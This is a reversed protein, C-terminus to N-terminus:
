DKIINNIFFDDYLLWAILGHPKNPIIILDKIDNDKCFSITDKLLIEDSGCFIKINKMNDKTYYKKIKIDFNNYINIINQSLIIDKNKQINNLYNLNWGIFPSILIIKTDILNFYKSLGLTLSCGASHSYIKKIGINNLLKIKNVLDKIIDDFCVNKITEITLVQYNPFKSKLTDIIFIDFCDNGIFAGGNILLITDINQLNNNTNEILYISPLIENFNYKSYYKILIYRIINSSHELFKNIDYYQLIKQLLYLLNFLILRLIMKIM